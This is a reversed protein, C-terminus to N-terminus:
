EVFLAIIDWIFDDFGMLIYLLALILGLLYLTNM